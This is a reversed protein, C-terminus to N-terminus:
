GWHSVRVTKTAETLILLPDLYEFLLRIIEFSFPPMNKYPGYRVGEDM